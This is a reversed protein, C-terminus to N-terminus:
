WLAGEPRRGAPTGAPCMHCIVHERGCPKTRPCLWRLDVVGGHLRAVCWLLRWPGPTRVDGAVYPTVEAMVTLAARHGVTQRYCPLGCRACDTRVAGAPVKAPRTM